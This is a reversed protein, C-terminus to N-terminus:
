ESAKLMNVGIKNIHMCIPTLSRTHLQTQCLFAVFPVRQEYSSRPKSRKRLWVPFTQWVFDVFSV